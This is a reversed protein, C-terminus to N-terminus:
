EIESEDFIPTVKKGSSSSIDVVNVPRTHSLIDEYRENANTEPTLDPISRTHTDERIDMGGQASYVSTVKEEGIVDTRRATLDDFLTESIKPISATEFLKAEAFEENKIPEPKKISTEENLLKAETHKSKQSNTSAEVRLNYMKALREDARREASEIIEEVSELTYDPKEEAYNVGQEDYIYPMCKALLSSERSKKEAVKEPEPKVEAAVMPKLEAADRKIEEVTRNVSNILADLPSIQANTSAIEKLDAKKTTAEKKEEKRQDDFFIIGEFEDNNFQDNSPIDKGKLLSM